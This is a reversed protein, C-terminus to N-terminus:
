RFVIERVIEEKMTGNIKAILDEKLFMLENRWTAHEVRVFLTGGVLREPSSVEAIRDGVITPWLELVEYRRLKSTIGLKALTSAIVNGIPSPTSRNM